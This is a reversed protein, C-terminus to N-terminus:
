ACPHFKASVVLAASGLWAGGNHTVFQGGPVFRPAAVVDTPLELSVFREGRKLRVTISAPIREAIPVRREVNKKRVCCCVAFPRESDRGGDQRAHGFGVALIGSEPSKPFQRRITRHIRRMEDRTLEYM